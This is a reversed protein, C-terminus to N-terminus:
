LTGWFAFVSGILVIVWLIKYIIIPKAEKYKEKYEQVRQESVGKSIHNVNKYGM